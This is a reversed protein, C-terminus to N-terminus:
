EGTLYKVNMPNISKNVVTCSYSNGWKSLFGVLTSDGPAIPNIMVNSTVDGNFQVAADQDSEIYVLKKSANYATITGVSYGIPGETPLPVASVFDITTPTADQVVYTRQSVVSFTGSIAIKNGAQLGQASYFSVDATATAVTEAVGSFQKSTLRVAQVNVGSIAIIQWLGANLPNFAYPGTDYLLQGDIRMIDGVAVDNLTAATFSFQAVSNNNITVACAVIGSPSRATRFASAGATVSLRYVSNTPSLVALNVQSTGDLGLPVTGNFLTISGGPPVVQNNSTPNSISLNQINRTHDFARQHPNDTVGVSDSYALLKNIITIISGGCSM